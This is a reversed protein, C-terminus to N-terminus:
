YLCVSWVEKDMKFFVVKAGFAIIDSDETIVASVYNRTNLYALQADAEYPAVICEVQQAAHLSVYLSVYLSMYSSVYLSVYLSVCFPCYLVKNRCSVVIVFQFIGKEPCIPRAPRWLACSRNRRTYSHLSVYLSVYFPCYLVENRCSVIDYCRVKRWWACSRNRRTCSCASHERICVLVRM